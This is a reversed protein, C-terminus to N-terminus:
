LPPYLVNEALEPDFGFEDVDYEGTLRRRLFSLASAVREDWVDPARRTPAPEAPASARPRPPAAGNRAPDVLTVGRGNRARRGGNLTPPVGNAPAARARRPRETMPPSRDPCAEPRPGCPASAM